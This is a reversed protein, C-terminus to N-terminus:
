AAEEDDDEEHVAEEANAGYVRRLGAHAAGEEPSTHRRKEITRDIFFAAVIASLITLGISIYTLLEFSEVLRLRAEVFPRAAVGFARDGEAVVAGEHRPPDRPHDVIPSVLLFAVRCELCNGLRVIQFRCAFFLPDEEEFKITLVTDQFNRKANRKNPQTTVQGTNAKEVGIASFHSSFGQQDDALSLNERRLSLDDM